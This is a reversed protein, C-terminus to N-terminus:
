QKDKGTLLCEIRDCSLALAKVQTVWGQVVM